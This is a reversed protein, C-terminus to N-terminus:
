SGAAGKGKGSITGGWAATQGGEGVVDQHTGVEGQSHDARLEDMRGPLGARRVGAGMGDHERGMVLRVEALEGLAESVEADGMM